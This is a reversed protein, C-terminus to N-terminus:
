QLSFAAYVRKTISFDGREFRGRSETAGDMAVRGCCPARVHTFLDFVDDNLSRRRTQSRHPRPMLVSVDRTLRHRASEPGFLGRTQNRGWERCVFGFLRPRVMSGIASNCYWNKIALAASYRAMAVLCAIIALARMPPKVATPSAAVACAGSSSLTLNVGM